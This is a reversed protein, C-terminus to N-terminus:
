GILKIRDFKSGFRTIRSKQKVWGRWKQGRLKKIKRNNPM